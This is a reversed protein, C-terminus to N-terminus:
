QHPSLQHFEAMRALRQLPHIFIRVKSIAQERRAQHLREQFSHVGDPLGGVLVCQPGNLRVPELTEFALPLTLVGDPQVILKSQYELDLLFLAAIPENDEVDFIIVSWPPLM